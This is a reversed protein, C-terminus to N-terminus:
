VELLSILNRLQINILNNTQIMKNLTIFDIIHYEKPIINNNLEKKDIKMIINLNQEQYFRGGEESLLVKIIIGTNKILNQKFLKEINDEYRENFEKQITPGLEVYDFCGIESKEKIIFKIIGEDEFFILGFTAKEKARFLPQTWHSVERGQITIDAFMVEFPYKNEIDQFRRQKIGWNNLSYLDVLRTSCNNFMKKNNLSHYIEKIKEQDVKLSLQNIFINNKDKIFSEGNLDSYPICSLVTRADMNILNDYKMLEKIQGLTMWRFNESEKIHDEVYLIVNRNRKKYFRSSQESQIQDAVIENKEFNIFYELFSPKRGGHKQLFNSKTAQITPSIQVKNINGPEIKAQMLFHLVGNIKSTIIGLYGIEDQVIIPQSELLNGQEYKEIGKISFFSNNKNRISGEKKDYFWYNSDELKIEKINVYTNNNKENIWNLLNETKNYTKVTKLSKIFEKLTIM